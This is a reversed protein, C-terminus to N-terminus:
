KNLEIHSPSEYVHSERHDEIQECTGKGNRPLHSESKEKIVGAGREVRRTAVVSTAVVAGREARQTNEYHKSIVTFQTRSHRTRILIDSSIM